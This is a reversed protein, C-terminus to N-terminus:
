MTRRWTTTLPTGCEKVSSQYQVTETYPASCGCTHLERAPELQSIRHEERKLPISVQDRADGVPQPRLLPAELNRHGGGRVGWTGGGRVGGGNRGGKGGRVEGTDGGRIEGM